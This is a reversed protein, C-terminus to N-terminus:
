CGPKRIHPRSDLCSVILTPLRCRGTDRAGTLEASLQVCTLCPHRESKDSALAHSSKVAHNGKIKWMGMALYLVHGGSFFKHIFERAYGVIIDASLAKNIHDSQM